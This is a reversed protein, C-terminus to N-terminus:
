PACMWPDLPNVATRRTRRPAADSTNTRPSPGTPATSTGSAATTTRESM